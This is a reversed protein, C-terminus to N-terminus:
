PACEVGIKGSLVQTLGYTIVKPDVVTIRLWGKM